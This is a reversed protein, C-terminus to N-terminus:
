NKGQTVLYSEMKVGVSPLVLFKVQTLFLESFRLSELGMARVAQPGKMGRSSLGSM